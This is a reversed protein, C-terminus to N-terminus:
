MILGLSSGTKQGGEAFAIGKTPFFVKKTINKMWHTHSGGKNKWKRKTIKKTYGKCIQPPNVAVSEGSMRMIPDKSIHAHTHVIGVHLIGNSILSLLFVTLFSIGSVSIYFISAPPGNNGLVSCPILQSDRHSEAALARTDNLCCPTRMVPPRSSSGCLPFLQIILKTYWCIFALPHAQVQEITFLRPLPSM